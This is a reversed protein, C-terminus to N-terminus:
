KNEQILDKATLTYKKGCFQCDVTIKGDIIMDDIDQSSFSRLMEIVKEQSCRCGFKLMKPMFIQLDNLHYLRNVLKEVPLKTDTLEKNTASNLLIVATRWLEEIDEESLHESAKGASPMRQIMVAGCRWGNEEDPEAVNLRIATDIQESVRFYQHVCETLTPQELAIIGQYSESAGKQDVIFSLAGQGFYAPVEATKKEKQTKEAQKLATEDFRAYGRIKGDSTQNVVLTSVPGDGQIQLTFVGEYKISSCLLASLGVAEGLLLGVTQPYNHQSLILDLTENLRVAHGRTLGDDIVFSYAADSM